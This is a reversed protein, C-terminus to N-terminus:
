QEAQVGQMVVKINNKDLSINKMFENFESLTLNDIAAQHNTAKDWGREYSVINNRWYSNKRIQNEYQKKAAERVKNFNEESAGNNILKLIEENARDILKQQVQDNTTFVSVLSWRGTVPNMRAYAYPSYTGGEEERLTDTYINSLIDGLLEVKVSNEISYPINTDSASMFVMTSPAQMPQKFTNDIIGSAFDVSTVSPAAASKKGKNSPLTAIYQEMLPKFTAMDINGVFVFTYDAANAMSKKVLDLSQAYDCQELLEATPTQFMPNNGYLTSMLQKQFIFQPNSEMGKLMTKSKELETAATEADPNLQTFYSYLLEMFTPLDKVTSSGELATSTDGIEYSLSVNKGALYKNLKVRSFKGLKSLEAADDALIVNAAQEAAYTNKGGLKFAEFLVEDQKFDTNKVIVKAGNSLTFVTSGFEGESTSKISGPKPLKEILPDTIVEDVYPEYDKEIAAKLIGKMNSEDLVVMDDKLPRWVCIVENELTLVQAAVQNYLQVPIMPLMQKMIENEAEIGLAPENDIFHRIIEQALVDNNTNNRENYQKELMSLLEDRARTVESEMFGAKLAQAVVALADEYGGVIDEKTQIYINFADKTKSVFYDGFNVGANVYRCEPKKAFEDLRNDIMTMLINKFVGDMLGMDTNRMEFPLKDSKISVIVMPVAQEKDSAEFYIPETNDSVNPYTREAANEPMPISSFMEIVRKEMANVDIDGVIVIGQQDPRYWKHYYDRLVQPKFNRVVEMKGIPMQQYQYEQYIKPLMATYIRQQANNRSRWEEEIVGREADIEADELLLSGSWDHIVLLVSDVLAADTTPVNNIRYVTEDFGTYANIDAGFRIGKSQLYNLMKKGPYNETGNFAMHELFHALGLQDENELTSGVKQAIYFNVRQKPEENHLIYYNLGNSLTGHKVKPNLPLQTPQQALGSLAGFALVAMTLIKKIM